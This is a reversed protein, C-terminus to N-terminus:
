PTLPNKLVRKVVGTGKVKIALQTSLLCKQSIKVLMEWFPPSLAKWHHIPSTVLIGYLPRLVHKLFSMLEPVGQLVM